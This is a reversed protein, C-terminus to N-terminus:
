SKMTLESLKISHSNYLKKIYNEPDHL